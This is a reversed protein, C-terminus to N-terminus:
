SMEPPPLHRIIKEFEDQSYDLVNIIQLLKGNNICDSKELKCYAPQSIGLKQAVVEQKMGKLQRLIRLTEGSIVMPSFNISCNYIFFCM